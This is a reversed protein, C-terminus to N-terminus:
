AIRSSRLPIPRRPVAAPAGFLFGQLCDIGSRVLYEADQETEVYEAVTFMDFHHAIRRLADALVQNDRDKHIDRIFSGDIKVIDFFFDKFYRFATNGAGFDDLAFACGLADMRMMFDAVKCPDEWPATETIEIILREAATPNDFLGRELTEDWM